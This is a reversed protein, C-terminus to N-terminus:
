KLRKEQREKNLHLCDDIGPTCIMNLKEYFIKLAICVKLEQTSTHVQFLLIPLEINYRMLEEKTHITYEHMLDFYKTSLVSKM